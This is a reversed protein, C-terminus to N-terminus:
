IAHSPEVAQSFIGLLARANAWLKPWGQVIKTGRAAALDCAAVPRGGRCLARWLQGMVRTYRLLIIGRAAQSRWWDGPGWRDLHALPHAAARRLNPRM